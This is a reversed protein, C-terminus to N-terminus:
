SQRTSLSWRSSAAETAEAKIRSTVWDLSSGTSISMMASSFRNQSSKGLSQRHNRIRERLSRLSELDSSQLSSAITSYFSYTSITSSRHATNSRAAAEPAEVTKTEQFDVPQLKINERLSKKMYSFKSSFYSTDHTEEYSSVLIGLVLQRGVPSGANPNYSAFSELFSAALNANPSTLVRVGGQLARPVIQSYSNSRLNALVNDGIAPVANFMPMQGAEDLHLQIKVNEASAYYGHQALVRTLYYYTVLDLKTIQGSLKGEHLRTGPSQEWTFYTETALSNHQKEGDDDGQKSCVDALLLRYLILRAAEENTIPWELLRKELLERAMEIQDPTVSSRACGIVASSVVSEHEEHIDKSRELVSAYMAFAKDYCQCAFLFDATVRIKKIEKLGACDIMENIDTRNDHFADELDTNLLPSAPPSDLDMRDSDEIPVLNVNGEVWQESMAASCNEPPRAPFQLSTQALCIEPSADLTSLARDARQHLSLSGQGSEMERTSTGGLDEPALSSSGQLPMQLQAYEYHPRPRPTQGIAFETSTNDIQNDNDELEAAPEPFSGRTSEPLFIESTRTNNKRVGWKALQSVYQRRFRSVASLDRAPAEGM